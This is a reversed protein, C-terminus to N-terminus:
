NQVRISTSSRPGATGALDVAVSELTYSGNRVTTTDWECHWSHWKRVGTGIVADDQGAGSLHFTVETVDVVNDRTTAIVETTGSLVAGGQPLRLSNTPPATLEALLSPSRAGVIRLRGPMPQTRPHQHWYILCTAEFGLWHLIQALVNPGTPYWALGHVGSMPDEVGEMHLQLSGDEAENAVATDLILLEDTRDAVAKLGTVPDPLHYLIGKFLCIDFRENGLRQAVEFLDCVDFRVDDDSKNFHHKLFRAQEIWHERADFGFCRAGLDNAVLSYGGANCACDLFSKGALGSPYLRRLLPRLEAPDILPMAPDSESEVKSNGDVTRVDPTLAINMHWPALARLQDSLNEVQNV